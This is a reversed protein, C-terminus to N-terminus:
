ARAKGGKDFTTFDPLADIIKAKTLDHPEVQENEIKSVAGPTLGAVNALKQQTWIRFM